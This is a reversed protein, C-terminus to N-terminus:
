VNRVDKQHHLIPLEQAPALLCVNIVVNIKGIREEGHNDKMFLMSLRIPLCTDTFWIIRITSSVSKLHAFDQIKKFITYGIISNRQSLVPNVSSSLLPLRLSLRM